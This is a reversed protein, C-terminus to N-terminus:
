KERSFNLEPLIIKVEKNEKPNFWHVIFNAKASHLSYGKLRLKEISTIFDNSFKVVFGNDTSLGEESISLPDGSTMGNVRQQVYEFYFLKVDRHTLLRSIFNAPSYVNSDTSYTLDDTVLNQLFRGNYHITLNTKARTM